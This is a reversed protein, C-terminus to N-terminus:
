KVSIVPGPTKARHPVMKYDSISTIVRSVPFDLRSEAPPQLPFASMGAAVHVIDADAYAKDPIKFIGCRRFFLHFGKHPKHRVKGTVVIYGKRVDPAM